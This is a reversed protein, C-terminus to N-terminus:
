PENGNIKVQAGPLAEGTSQDVVSGTLMVSAPTEKVAKSDRTKDNALVPLVLAMMLLFLLTKKM